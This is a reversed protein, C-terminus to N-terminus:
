SKLKFKSIEQKLSDAENKLFSTVSVFEKLSDEITIAGKSLEDMSKMIHNTGQMQFQMNKNIENFRPIIEEIQNIIQELKFNVGVM